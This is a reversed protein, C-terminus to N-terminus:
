NSKEYTLVMRVLRNYSQLGGEVKNFSLYSGYIKNRVKPMFEPYREDLKRRAAFDSKVETSLSEWMENQFTRNLKRGDSAMYLWLTFEASYKVFWDESKLCSLYGVFNADGEDTVGFGHALEHAIVYPKQGTFLAKDIYSESGFPFYFGATNLRLLTGPPVFNKCAPNLSSDKGFDHVTSKVKDLLHHYYTGTWDKTTDPLPANRRLYNLRQTQRKWRDKFQNTDVEVFENNFYTRSISEQAYNFGWMWYFLCAVFIVFTTVGLLSNLLIHRWSDSRLGIIGAVIIVFTIALLVQYVPVESFKGVSQLNKNLPVFITKYFWDAHDQSANVWIGFCMTLFGVFLAFTFGSHDKFFAIIRKSTIKM